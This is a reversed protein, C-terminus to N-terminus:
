IDGQQSETNLIGSDDNTKYVYQILKTLLDPFETGWEKFRRKTIQNPHEKQILKLRVGEGYNNELDQSDLERLKVIQEIHRDNVINLHFNKGNRGQYWCEYGDLLSTVENSDDIVDRRGLDVFEDPNEQYIYVPLKKHELKGNDLNLCEWVEYYAHARGDPTVQDAPVPFVRVGDANRRYEGTYDLLEYKTSKTGLSVLQGIKYIM